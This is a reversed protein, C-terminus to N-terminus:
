VRGCSHLNRTRRPNFSNLIALLLSWLCRHNLSELWSKSLFIFTYASYIRSGTEVFWDLRSIHRCGVNISITWINSHHTPDDMLIALWRILCLWNWDEFVRCKSVTWSNWFKLAINWSFDAESWGTSDVTICYVDWLQFKIFTRM